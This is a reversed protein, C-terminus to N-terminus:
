RAAAMRAPGFMIKAGSRQVVELYYPAAKGKRASRDLYSYSHGGANASARVMSRTLRVKKLGGRYLNFGVADGASRTRWRVLVGKPASSARFSQIGDASTPGGSGTQIIGTGEVLLTYSAGGNVTTEYVIVYFSHPPPQPESGGGAFYLWYSFDGAQGAGLGGYVGGAYGLLTNAPNFTDRYLAAAATGSHVLLSVNVCLDSGHGVANAWYGSLAQFTYVKYHFPGSTTASSAFSQSDCQRRFGEARPNSFVLGPSNPPISDNIVFSGKAAYSGALASAAFAAFALAVLSLSLRRVVTRTCAPAAGEASGPTKM